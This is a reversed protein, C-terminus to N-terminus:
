GRFIYTRTGPGIEVVDGDRLMQEKVRERNIYVGNESGLDLLTYGHDGMVIKAHQRSVAGDNIRIDNGPARGITTETPNLPFEQETGDSAPAVLRAMAFMATAEGDGPEEGEPMPPPSPPSPLDDGPMPPPGGAEMVPMRGTPIDEMASPTPAHETEGPDDSAPIPPPAVDPLEGVYTAEAGEDDDSPTRDDDLETEEDGEDGPGDVPGDEAGSDNAAEAQDDDGDSGEDAPEAEPEPESTEAEAPEEDDGSLLEDESRVASVFRERLAEGEALETECRELTKKADDMREAFDAKEFEGLENRFELEETALRAAEVAESMRQLLGTLTAFETRARQKLPRATDELADYRTQYDGHVRDFVVQSVEDRKAEMADLREHLTEQEAKLTRLEEIVTVDIAKLEDLM